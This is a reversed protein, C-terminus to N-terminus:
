NHINLFINQMRYNKSAWFISILWTYHSLSPTLISNKLLFILIHEFYWWLSTENTKYIFKYDYYIQLSFLNYSFIQYNICYESNDYSIENVKSSTFNFCSTSKPNIKHWSLLYQMILISFNLYSQHSSSLIVLCFSFIATVCFLALELPICKCVAINMSVVHHGRDFALLRHVNAYAFQEHRHTFRSPYAHFEIHFFRMNEGTHDRDLM